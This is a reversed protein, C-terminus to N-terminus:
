GIKFERWIAELQAIQVSEEKTKPALIKIEGGDIEYRRLEVHEVLEKRRLESVKRRTEQAILAAMAKFTPADVSELEPIDKAPGFYLLNGSWGGERWFAKAAAEALDAMRIKVGGLEIPMEKIAKAKVWLLGEKIYGDYDVLKGVLQAKDARSVTGLRGDKEDKDLEEFIPKLRDFAIGPLVGREALVALGESPKKGDPTSLIASGLLWAAALVENVSPKKGGALEKALRLVLRHIHSEREIKELGGQGFHSSIVIEPSLGDETAHVRRVMIKYDGPMFLAWMLLREAAQFYSTTRHLVQGKYFVRADDTMIAALNHLLRHLDRLELRNPPFELD